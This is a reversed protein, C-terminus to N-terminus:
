KIIQDKLLTNLLKKAYTKSGSNYSSPDTISSQGSWMISAEPDGISTDYLRTELIYSKEERYGTNYYDYGTYIYRRYGYYGRPYYYNDNTQVDRTAVDVLYTVLVADYGGVKIRNGIEEETFDKISSTPPFVILANTATIGEETLKEVVTNEFTSRAQMNKSIAMVLIKDFKKGNFNEKTWTSNMASSCGILLPIILILSLKKM